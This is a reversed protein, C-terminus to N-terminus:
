FALGRRGFFLLLDSLTIVVGTESESVNVLGGLKNFLIM